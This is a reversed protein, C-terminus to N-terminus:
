TSVIRLNSWWQRVPSSLSPEAWHHLSAPGAARLTPTFSTLNFEVQTRIPGTETRIINMKDNKFPFKCKGGEHKKNYCLGETNLLILYSGM